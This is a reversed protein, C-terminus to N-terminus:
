QGFFPFPNWNQLRLVVYSETSGPLTVKVPSLHDTHAEYPMAWRTKPNLKPKKLFLHQFHENVSALPLLFFLRQPNSQRLLALPTM